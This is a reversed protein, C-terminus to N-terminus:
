QYKSLFKQLNGLNEGAAMIYKVVDKLLEPRNELTYKIAIKGMVELLEDQMAVIEDIADM